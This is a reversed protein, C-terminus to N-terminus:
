GRSSVPRLLRLPVLTVLYIAFVGGATLLGFIVLVEVAAWPGEVIAHWVDFAAGAALAVVIGFLLRHRRPSLPSGDLFREIWGAVAGVPRGLGIRGSIDTALSLADDVVDPEIADDSGDGSSRFAVLQLVAAGVAIVGTLAVLIGIIAPSGAIPVTAIAVIDTVVAALVIAVSAASGWRIRRGTAAPLTPGRHRLSRVWTAGAVVPLFISAYSAVYDWPDDSFPSLDRVARIQTTVVWLVAYAVVALAAANAARRTARTEEVSV